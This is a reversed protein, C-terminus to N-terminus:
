SKVSEELPERGSEGSMCLEGTVFIGTFFSLHLLVGSIVTFVGGEVETTSLGLFPFTLSLCLFLVTLSCFGLVDDNGLTALSVCPNNIIDGLGGLDLTGGIQTFCSSFTISGNDGGGIFFSTSLSSSEVGHEDESTVFM